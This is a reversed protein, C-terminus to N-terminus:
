GAFDRVVAELDRSHARAQAAEIQNSNLRAELESRWKKVRDKTEQTSAPNQQVFLVLELAREHSGEMALLAALGALSTLMHPPVHATTGAKCAEIFYQRARAEDGQELAFEGAENLVRSLSWLDGVERYIAVSEELMRRAEAHDGTAQASAALQELGLGIGWRNGSERAIQLNELLLSQAETLSDLM